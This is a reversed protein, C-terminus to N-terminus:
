RRNIPRGPREPPKGPHLLFVLFPGVAPLLLALLGWFAYRGLSLERRRLSFMALVYLCVLCAILLLRVTAASM